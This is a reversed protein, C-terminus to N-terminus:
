RTVWFTHWPDMKGLRAGGGAAKKQALHLGQLTQIVISDISYHQARLEHHWSTHAHALRQLTQRINTHDEECSEETTKRPVGVQIRERIQESSLVLIRRNYLIASRRM